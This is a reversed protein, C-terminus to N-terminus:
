HLAIYPYVILIVLLTLGQLVIGRWMPNTIITELWGLALKNEKLFKNTNYEGQHLDPNNMYHYKIAYVRKIIQDQFLRSAFSIRSLAEIAEDSWESAPKNFELLTIGKQGTEVVLKAEEKTRGNAPEPDLLFNFIAKPIALIMKVIFFWPIGILFLVLFALLFQITRESSYNIAILYAIIPLCIINLLGLVYAFPYVLVKYLKHARYDLMGFM